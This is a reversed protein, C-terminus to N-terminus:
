DKEDSSIVINDISSPYIFNFYSFLRSSKSLKTIGGNIILNVNDIVKIGRANDIFLRKDPSVIGKNGKVIKSVLRPIMGNHMHGCFIFNFEELEKIIDENDMYIPSHCVVIKVKDKDLKKFKKKDKKIKDLLIEKTERRSKYYYDYDLELMYVIINDDEYYNNFRSVYVNDIDNIEEWFKDKIDLVKKNNVVKTIDHNGLTILVKYKSGLSSLFEKLECIKEKNNTIDTSDILDGAVFLYDTDFDLAKELELLKKSSFKDSYHLDGFMMININKKYNNYIHREIEIM